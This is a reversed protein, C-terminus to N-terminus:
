LEIIFNDFRLHLTSIKLQLVIVFPLNYFVAVTDVKHCYKLFRQFINCM